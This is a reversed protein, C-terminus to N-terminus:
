PDARAVFRRFVLISRRTADCSGTKRRRIVFDRNAAWREAQGRASTSVGTQRRHRRAVVDYGLTLGNLAHERAEKFKAIALELPRRRLATGGQVSTSRM